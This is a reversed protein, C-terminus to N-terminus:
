LAKRIEAQHLEYGQDRMVKVWGPRSQITATQCGITKGIHETLPILVSVIERLEGAAIEGHLELLGSPYKRVSALIASHEGSVLIMRGCAIEGDVWTIPYFRPDLVDAFAARFRLYEQWDHPTPSGVTIPTTAM